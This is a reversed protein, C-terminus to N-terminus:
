FCRIVQRAIRFNLSNIYRINTVLGDQIVCSGTIGVRHGGKVTIFGNAIQSQYSYISYECLKQLIELIDSSNTIYNIKINGNQTKIIIPKEQRIRIEEAFEIKDFILSSIKRPFFGLVENELNDM